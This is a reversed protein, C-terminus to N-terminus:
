SFRISRAAANFVPLYRVRKGPTTTFSVVVSKGSRLFAWQTIDSVIRTGGRLIAIRVHSRVVRGAPVRELRTSAAGVRGPLTSIEARAAELYQDITIGAPIPAVVVNVNTAFTAAGAPDFAFLKVISGPSSLQTLMAALEPNEKALAKAANSTATRADVTRWSAPLAISMGASPVARRITAADALPALVAATAFLLYLGKRVRSMM